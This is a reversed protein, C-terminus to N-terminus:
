VNGKYKYKLFSLDKFEEDMKEDFTKGPSSSESKKPMVNGIRNRLETTSWDHDRSNFVLEIGKEKCISKGTFEKDKYEIGLIRVDIKTSKLIDEVDKESEYVVISDVYKCGNVQIQREVISQVPKNKTGPRDITPDTQIAAILHDCSEKAEKLMLVHGSHFLDFTSFTIGVKM